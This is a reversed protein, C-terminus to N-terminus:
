FEARVGANPLVIAPQYGFACVVRLQDDLRCDRKTAERSFTLNLWQLMAAMHGFSTAWRYSFSLDARFFAPLRTEVRQFRAEVFDYITNSAPKGSRYYIRSGSVFGGGWDYRLVLNLQHRVDFQPAFATGDAARADAWGLTYSLWGTLRESLDRRLLIEAGYAHGDGRPLGQRQCLPMPQGLSTRAFPALPDSNGQCDLILEMFVLDSYRHYFGTASLSLKGPLELTAGAETQLASQVGYDLEFDSLGPIPLPSSAAQHATGAAAHLALEPLAHWRILLREDAAQERRGAAVWLDGRLGAEVEVARLPVLSLETYIGAADRAEIRSLPAQDLFAIPQTQLDFGGSFGPLFRGPNTTSGTSPESAQMGMGGPGRELTALKAEMDAGLRVRTGHAPGIEVWASPGMRGSRATLQDGLVGEEYGFYVASGVELEPLSRVLRALVRHFQLAIDDQPQAEDGVQDYAGFVALTAKDHASLAHEFRAQYDWYSLRANSGIASLMLNPYGLRAHLSLGQTRPTILLAEADLLRLDLEGQSREAADASGEASLVGGTHRGYRAPAV